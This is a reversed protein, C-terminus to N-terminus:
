QKLNIVTPLRFVFDHRNFDKYFLFEQSLESSLEPHKKIQENLAEIAADKGSVVGKLLVMGKILEIDNNRAALRKEYELQTQRYTEKALDLYGMVEWLMGKQMLLAPHNGTLTLLKNIALMEGSYNHKQDYASALNNYFVFNTSDCAIAQKFLDIAKDLGKEGNAPYNELYGIGEDNLKICRLPHGGRDSSNQGLCNFVILMLGAFALTKIYSM